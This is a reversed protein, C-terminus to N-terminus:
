RGILRRLWGLGRSPIRDLKRIRATLATDLTPMPEGLHEASLEIARPFFFEARAWANSLGLNSHFNDDFICLFHSGCANGDPYDNVESSIVLCPQNSGREYLVLLWEYEIPKYDAPAGPIPASVIRHLGVAVHSSSVDVRFAM